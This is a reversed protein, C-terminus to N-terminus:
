RSQRAARSGYIRDLLEYLVYEQARQASRLLRNVHMHAYSMVIEDLSASLEGREDLWRLEEALAEVRVSRRRLAEVGGRLALPPEGAGNVLAELEARQDRYRHSLARQFVRDAGLEKGYGDCAFRVIARKRELGLGFDDFLRDIGILAARWRQDAGAEGKLARMIALVADSDAHFVEEAIEIGRAGGYREVEREYTDLEVRWLQGSDVLPATLSSLAPLTEHLLGRPDGNVRLRVHWEPDGFRIFFWRSAVASALSAGVAEVAVDLVRDATATGTFLKAYLWQSGVAFRRQCGTARRPRVSASPPHSSSRVFPLVLEHVFRGEPGVACLSEAGPLLEVLATSARRKLQGALAEISLVNDLDVVLENDADVLAVYRPLSREARLQQVAAFQPGGPPQRFAALESDNLNWTARSLVTRGHVVRPLFPASELPGWDWMLGSATAQHQLACLFRYVGLGRWVYNHATTLRPIVERGLRRSRLVIRDREVSVLLDSVPIQREAPAGSRGLYPIEYARLVPRCLINGVRGEPLHVIEAYVCDPRNSEEVRLHEALYRHLQADVHCFRGLLEAGSPGSASRVFVRFAGRGVADESAAEISAMVQLGDPLALPESGEVSALDSSDISIEDDGAGLARGLKDLLLADHRTWRATQDGVRGLPLGGLLEAAEASPSSSREFGIGNEEDLVEPLPVERTEYRRVFGERFRALAEPERGRTFAHLARVGRLIEAVVHEGLALECAPKTLDVQVLRSQQPAAPLGSLASAIARYRDPSAGVGEGDIVALDNQADSLRQAAQASAPNQALTRILVAIPQEGTLQPRLESTLIQSEALESVYAKAEAHTVEDDVLAAALVDLHEGERARELTAMLYPTKDVAVLRYSRGNEAQVAEAFHLRAGVECLSSNPRHLFGDRLASDRELAESLAWLYDMDIRTHRRYLDADSLQLRTRKGVKGTTCGAFLGFPTPRAAARSFYCVLSQEAKRAAKSEPERRWSELAAELSPSAIFVAERFEPRAALQALRERLRDRDRVLAEDLGATEGVRAAAELGEGWTVFESFPLLPSRLVFFGSAVPAAKAEAAVPRRTAEASRM